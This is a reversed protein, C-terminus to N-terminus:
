NEVVMRRYLRAADVNYLSRRVDGPNAGSLSLPVVTIQYHEGFWSSCENTWVNKMGTALPMCGTTPPYVLQQYSVDEGCITPSFDWICSNSGIDTINTVPFPMATSTLVQLSLISAFISIFRNFILKLM